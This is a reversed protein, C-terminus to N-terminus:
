SPVPVVVLEGIGTWTASEAFDISAPPVVVHATAVVPSGHHQPRFSHPWSPLPLVTAAFRGVSTDQGTLSATACILTPQPMAHARLSLPLVHHQPRLASPPTPEGFVVSRQPKSKQELVGILMLPSRVKLSTSAPM